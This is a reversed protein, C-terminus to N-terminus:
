LLKVEFGGADGAAARQVVAASAQVAPLAMPDLMLRHGGAHIAQLEDLSLQGPRLLM